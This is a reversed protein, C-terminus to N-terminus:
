AVHQDDSEGTFNLRAFEGFLDTAAADYARAAEEPTDFYGLHRAAGDFGIYARYRGTRKFFSVGKFGSTNRRSRRQNMANQQRTAERLNQRRNDLGDGNIHDVLPWGTLFTHLREPGRRGKVIRQAYVHGGCLVYRWPGATMVAEYDADDVLATPEHVLRIEKM